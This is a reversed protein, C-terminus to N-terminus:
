RGPAPVQPDVVFRFQCCGEVTCHAREHEVSIDPGFECAFTRYEIGCISESIRDLFDRRGAKTIHRVWPCDNVSLVFGDSGPPSLEFCYQEAALKFDLARHLAEIGSGTELLGQITRAEIKPLVEWVAIDLALAKEFDADQEVKMFWLGDVSVFCKRFYDAILKQDHM